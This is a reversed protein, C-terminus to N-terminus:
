RRAVGQKFSGILARLERREQHTAPNM